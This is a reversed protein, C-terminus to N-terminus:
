IMKLQRMMLAIIVLLLLVIIYFMVDFKRKCMRCKCKDAYDRM